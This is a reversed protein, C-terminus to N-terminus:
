PQVTTGMTIPRRRKCPRRQVTVASVGAIRSPPTACVAGCHAGTRASQIGRRRNARKCELRGRARAWQCSSSGSERDGALSRLLGRAPRCRAELGPQAQPRLPGQPRPGLGPAAARGGLGRAKGAQAAAPGAKARWRVLQCGRARRVHVGPAPTKLPLWLPPERERERPHWAGGVTTRPELKM